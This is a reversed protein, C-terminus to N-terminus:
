LRSTGLPIGRVKVITSRTRDSIAQGLVLILAVGRLSWSDLSGTQTTVVDSTGNMPISVNVHATSDTQVLSTGDLTSLMVNFNNSIYYTIGATASSHLTWAPSATTETELIYSSASTNVAVTIYIDTGDYTANWARLGSSSASITYFDGFNSGNADSYAICMSIPLLPGTNKAIVAYSDGLWVIANGSYYDTLGEPNPSWNELTVTVYPTEWTLYSLEARHCSATGGNLIIASNFGNTAMRGIFYPTGDGYTVPYSEVKVPLFPNGNVLDPTTQGSYIIQFGESIERAVVLAYVDDYGVGNFDEGLFAWALYLGDDLQYCEHAIIITAFGGPNYLGGCSHFTWNIGDVSTATGTYLYSPSATSTTAYFKQGDHFIRQLYFDYVPPTAAPYNPPAYSAVPSYTTWTAGDDESVFIANQGTGVYYSYVWTGNRDTVAPGIPPKSASGTINPVPITATSSYSASVSNGNGVYLKTM